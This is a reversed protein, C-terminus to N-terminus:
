KGHQVQREQDAAQEHLDRKFHHAIIDFGHNLYFRHATHRQSGSDLHLQECGLREAEQEIWQLLAHAHGQGRYQPLTVLDDVYLYAGWALTHLFRFGAAAVATTAAGEADDFAAVLRYGEPRQQTNIWNVFVEPSRLQSRAPRLERLALYALYTEGADLERVRM